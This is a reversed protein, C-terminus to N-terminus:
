IASLYNSKRESESEFSVILVQLCLELLKLLNTNKFDITGTYFYEFMKEFSAVDDM